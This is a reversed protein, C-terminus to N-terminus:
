SRRTVVPKSPPTRLIEMSVKYSTAWDQLDIEPYVGRLLSVGLPNVCVWWVLAEPDIDPRILGTEQAQRAFDAMKVLTMDQIPGVVGAVESEHRAADRAALRLGRNRPNENDAFRDVIKAFALDGEESSEAIVAVLDIGNTQVQPGIHTLIVENMLSAKGAFRNYIAGTTLGARRSIDAVAATEYGKEAFVDTAAEVLADCIQDHNHDDLSPVNPISRPTNRKTDPLPTNMPVNTVTMRMLANLAEFGHRPPTSALGCIYSGIWSAARLMTQVRPNQGERVEGRAVAQERATLAVDIRRRMFGYVTDHLEPTHRAALLLEAMVGLKELDIAPSTLSGSWFEFAAADSQTGLTPELQEEVLTQVLAEKTPFRNYIASTALGCKGAVATLAMADYGVRRLEAATADLLEIRLEASRLKSVKVM